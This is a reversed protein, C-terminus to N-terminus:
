EMEEIKKILYKETLKINDSFKKLIKAEEKTLKKDGKANELTEVHENLDDELLKMARHIENKTEHLVKDTSQKPKRTKRMIFYTLAWVFLLLGLISVILLLTSNALLSTTGSTKATNPEPFNISLSEEATNGAADFAKVTVGRIGAPVNAFTYRTPGNANTSKIEAPAQGDVTILYKAIGSASDKASIDIVAQGSDLISHNVTLSEPATTDIKVKRHTIKGWGSSDRYRIHFYSLGEEIDNVEKSNIAPTYSVTPTSDPDRDFLLQLSTVGKPVSWLFTTDSLSYWKEPDPMDKSSVIPAAPGVETPKPTEKVEPTTPKTAPPATVVVSVGTKSQTADTGLGDNARVTASQFAITAKGDRKARMQISLVKGASGTYGPNPVGGNFTVMGGSFAPQEVWLSLVSGTTNVSLIELIDSPVSIVGEVSNIPVGNTNVYITATVTEGTQVEARGTTIYVSAADIVQASLFFGAIIVTVIVNKLIKM